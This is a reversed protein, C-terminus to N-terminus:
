DSGLDCRCLPCTRDVQLWGQLCCRHFPHNCVKTKVICNENDASCEEDAALDDLCISCCPHDQLAADDPELVVTNRELSGDPAARKTHILRRRLALQLLRALGFENLLMVGAWALNVTACVKAAVYLDFHVHVCASQAEKFGDAPVEQSWPLSSLIYLGLFNWETIIVMSVCDYVKVRWPVWLPFSPVPRWLCCCRHALTGTRRPQHMVAAYVMILVTVFGWVHLVDRCQLQWVRICKVLLWIQLSIIAPASIRATLLFAGVFVPFNQRLVDEAHEQVLVFDESMPTGPM